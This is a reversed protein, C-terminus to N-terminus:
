HFACVVQEQGNPVRKLYSRFNDVLEILLLEVHILKLLTRFTKKTLPRDDYVSVQFREDANLFRVMDSLEITGGNAVGFLREVKGRFDGKLLLKNRHLLTLICEVGPPLCQHEPHLERYM